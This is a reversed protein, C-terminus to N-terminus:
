FSELCTRLKKIENNTKVTELPRSIACYFALMGADVKDNKTRLLRSRAFSKSQFPNIVSVVTKPQEQLYETIEEHYNGTAEICFHMKSFDKSHNKIWTFLKKHHLYVNGFTATSIIKKGDKTLAIDLKDKPVDIGIYVTKTM